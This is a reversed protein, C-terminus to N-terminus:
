DQRWWLGMAAAIALTHLPSLGVVRLVFAGAVFLVAMRVGTYKAQSRALKAAAAVMIGVGAAIAGAVAAGLWPIRDGAECVRTLWLVMVSSPITAALVAAAAGGAGLVYWGAAACFALM